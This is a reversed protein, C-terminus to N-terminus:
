DDFITKMTDKMTDVDFSELYQETISLSSHGLAKSIQYVDINRRRALESFGHRAMHMSLPKNINAMKAMVKLQRNMSANISGIRNLKNKLTTTLDDTTLLPFIPQSLETSNYKSMIQEAKKVLAVIRPKGTKDMAYTLTGNIINRPTLQLLDGVRVGACYLSFLFADRVVVQLPTLEDTNLEILRNIEELTPRERKPRELKLRFRDFPNHQSGLYGQDIAKNLIGRITRLNNHRTNVGNGISALHAEYKSLFTVDIDDLELRGKGYYAKIKNIVTKYRKYTRVQDKQEMQDLIEQGFAFFDPRQPETRPKLQVEKWKIGGEDLQLAIKFANQRLFNLYSNTRVFSTYCKKVQQANEDWENEPDVYIHTSQQKTRRNHTLRIYLPSLGQSNKKDTRCIIKVTAM